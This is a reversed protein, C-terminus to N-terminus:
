KGGNNDVIQQIIAKIDVSTDRTNCNEVTLPDLTKSEQNNYMFQPYSINEGINPQCDSQALWWTFNYYGATYWTHMMDKIFWTYEPYLCTSADIEGDCSLHNHGDGNKQVYESGFTTGFDSCTAGLSTRSTDILFDSQYSDDTLVPVASKGYNSIVALKMGDEIGSDLIEKTKDMVGYHYADLKKILSANEDEDLMYAKAQEYYENPVFTWLGPINGFLDRLCSDYLAEKGKSLVRDLTGCVPNFVYGALAKYIWRYLVTVPDNGQIFNGVYELVSDTKINLDGTFMGGVLTIGNFASSQMIVTEVSDYGYVSLYTMLVAGGMSEGKLVVKDHGTLEKTKEVYDNLEDAIDFVDERWDYNFRNDCRYGHVSSPEVRFKVDVSENIPDGNDDCSADKMMENISRGLSHAFSDYDGTLKLMVTPIILQSVAKIIASKEPMFVNYQDETGPNAVLDTMAFGTVYVVPTTTCTCKDTAYFSFAGVSMSFTLIVALLVSIAKKM